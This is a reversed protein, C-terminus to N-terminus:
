NLDKKLNNLQEELLSLKKELEGKIIEKREEVAEDTKDTDIVTDTVTDNVTDIVTDIKVVDKVINHPDIRGDKDKTESKIKEKQIIEPELEEGDLDEKFSYDSIISYKEEHPLYVKIQSIYMDCYFNQKLFKLGRIHLIVEVELDSTCKEITQCIKNQDFIPCQAKGKVTPLKFSYIPRHDKKAPKLIRKYMEDITDKPIEKDFWVKSSNFTNTINEEDLKLLFDYFKFDNNINGVDLSPSKKNICAQGDTLCKLKPTQIYLPQDGYSIGSYYILGVKEPDTFKMKKFDIENFTSISM